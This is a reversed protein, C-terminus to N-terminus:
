NSYNARYNDIEKYILLLLALQRQCLNSALKVYEIFIAFVINLLFDSCLFLLIIFALLGKTAVNWCVSLDQMSSGLTGGSDITM